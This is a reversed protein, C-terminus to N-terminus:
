ASCCDKFVARPTLAGIEGSCGSTIKNTGEGFAGAVTAHVAFIPAFSIATSPTSSCHKRVPPPGHGSPRSVISKGIFSIMGRSLYNLNYENHLM